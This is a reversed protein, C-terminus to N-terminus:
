LVLFFRGELSLYEPSSSFMFRKFDTSQVKIIFCFFWYSWLKVAGLSLWRENWGLKLYIGRLWGERFGFYIKEQPDVIWNLDILELEVYRISAAGSTGAVSELWRMDSWLCCWLCWVRLWCDFVHTLSSYLDMWMHYV